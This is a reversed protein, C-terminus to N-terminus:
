KALEKFLLKEHKKSEHKKYRQNYYLDIDRINQPTLTINTINYFSTDLETSNLKNMWKSAKGINQKLHDDGRVLMEIIFKFTKKYRETLDKSRENGMIEDSMKIYKKFYVYSTAYNKYCGRGCKYMIGLNYVATLDKQRYGLEFYEFAVKCSADTRNKVNDYVVGLSNSANGSGLQSAIKYTELLIPCDLLNFNSDKTEEQSIFFKGIIYYPIWQYKTVIEQAEELSSSNELSFADLLDPLLDVYEVILNEFRDCSNCDNFKIKEKRFHHDCKTVYSRLSLIFAVTSWFQNYGSREKFSIVTENTPLFPLGIINNLVKDIASSDNMDANIVSLRFETENM